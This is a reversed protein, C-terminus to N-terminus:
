SSKRVIIQFTSGASPLTFSKQGATAGSIVQSSAGNDYVVTISDAPENLYFSGASGTVNIEGAYPSASAFVPVMAVAAAVAFYKRMKLKEKYDRSFVHTPKLM